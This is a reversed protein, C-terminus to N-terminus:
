LLQIFAFILDTTQDIEQALNQCAPKPQQDLLRSLGDRLADVFRYDYAGGVVVSSLLPELVELVQRLEDRDVGAAVPNTEDPQALAGLIARVAVLANLAAAVQDDNYTNEVVGPAAPFDNPDFSGPDNDSPLDITPRPDPRLHKPCRPTGSM